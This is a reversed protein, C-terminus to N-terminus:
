KRCLPCKRLYSEMEYKYEREDNWINHEDNYIKILPYDREWKMNGQDDEYENEIDPYPFKPENERNDDGYYCRKFCQICIKHICNPQNSVRKNEFCVPCEVNDSLELIGFENILCSLCKYCGKCEFWWKPLVSDCLEYNKCKIGGGDEQTYQCDYGINNNEYILDREM